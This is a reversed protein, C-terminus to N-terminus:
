AKEEEKRQIKMMAAMVRDWARDEMLLRFGPRLLTADRTAVGYDHIRDELAKRDDNNM